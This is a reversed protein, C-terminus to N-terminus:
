YSILEAFIGSIITNSFVFGDPDKLRLTGQDSVLDTSEIMEVQALGLELALAAGNLIKAVTGSGFEKEIWNMDLGDATRLRTLLIDQLNSLQDREDNLNLELSIDDITPIWPPMWSTGQNHYTEEEQIIWSVYDSMQRPRSFRKSGICSSSGLGVAQSLFYYNYSNM